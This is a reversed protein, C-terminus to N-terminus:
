PVADPDPLWMITDKDASMLMNYRQNYAVISGKNPGPLDVMPRNINDHTPEGSIDWVLLGDEGSGGVVYQGDPSFCADGQGPVSGPMPKAPPARGTNVSKRVCVHRLEGSFADLVYHCPGTTVVLFSKGDNSFELKTWDGRRGQSYSKEIEELPFVSFPAKDYNRADYLFIMSAQPAAIAIVSASPDYVALSPSALFDLKGQTNPSNLSWLRVTNDLSCSLFMDNAPSLCISTVPGTHGKYYRIYSNDHTSLYRIADTHLYTTLVLSLSGPLFSAMSRPALM